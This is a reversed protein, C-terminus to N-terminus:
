SRPRSTRLSFALLDNESHIYVHMCRLLACSWRQLLKQEAASSSAWLLLKRIDGMSKRDRVDPPIEELPFGLRETLLVLARRHYYWLAEETEPVSLDFGYGALFAEAEELSDINLHPVDIISHGGAVTHLVPPDFDFQHFM